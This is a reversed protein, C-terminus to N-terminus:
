HADYNKIKKDLSELEEILDQQRKILRDKEELQLKKPLHLHIEDLLKSKIFDDGIMSVKLKLDEYDSLTLSKRSKCKLSVLRILKDVVEASFSGVFEDMFFQSELIDFINACFTEHPM